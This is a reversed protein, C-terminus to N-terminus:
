LVSHSLPYLPNQTCTSIGKRVAILMNLDSIDVFDLSVKPSSPDNVEYSTTPKSEQVQM